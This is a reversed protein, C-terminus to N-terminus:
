RNENMGLPPLTPPANSLAIMKIPSRGFGAPLNQVVNVVRDGNM